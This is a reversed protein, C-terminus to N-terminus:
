RPGIEICVNTPHSYFDAAARGGERGLGSRGNGGFPSRLDRLWWSNVWALGVDLAPAVRHARDVDGTWVTAALGYESGNALAVAEEETDFPAVHCVPGFVEDTVTVADRGLGTWITPPFFAGQDLENGFLIPEAGAHVTAGEKIALECYSRVKARHERSILPGIGTRPDDPRGPVLALAEDTLGAVFEDFIPRQVYVRETCLCVQGANTFVSRATGRVARGLDTDTFVLAANKGGLEFSVPTLNPAAATMIASGTASEGTFTIADIGPHSTLYEGTSGPGFGHVVNVVGDPVGAEAMAEALLTASSPTLESPKVVVTNGAALAPAVKWTLLLLPLNWPVIVAVVGMPKRYAYNLARRGDGTETSYSEQRETGYVFDAAHDFNAVARAVDLRRALELPKGTDAVEAAVFEEAREEVTRAVRRLLAARDVTRLRGWPGSLADRAARVAADVTEGSAEHVQAVLSGDVPSVKTFTREGEVGRGGVVNLLTAVTAM